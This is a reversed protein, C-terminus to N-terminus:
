QSPPNPGLGLVLAGSALGVLVVVAVQWHRNTLLANIIRDGLQTAQAMAAGLFTRAHEM